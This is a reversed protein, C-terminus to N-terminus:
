KRSQPPWNLDANMIHKEWVVLDKSYENNLHKSFIWDMAFELDSASSVYYIPSIEHEADSVSIHNASIHSYRNFPDYQLVPIKHQLAEEISTSSFSVLLDSSLLFDAFTGEVYVEYNSSKIFLSKVEELSLDKFGKMRIRIALFTDPMHDIVRILDNIQSVYEDHTLQILPQFNNWGFPTAAHLM